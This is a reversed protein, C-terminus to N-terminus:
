LEKRQTLKPSAETHTRILEHLRDVNTQSDNLRAQSFSMGRYGIDTRLQKEAEKLDALMQDLYPDSM